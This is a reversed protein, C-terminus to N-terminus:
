PSRDAAAGHLHSGARSDAIVHPHAARATPIVVAIKGQPDIIFTVRQAMGMPGLIYRQQYDEYDLGSVRSVIHGAITPGVNSYRTQTTPPNVLVCPAVSRVTAEVGTGALM